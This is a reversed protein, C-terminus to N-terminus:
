RYSVLLSDVERRLLPDDATAEELFAPREAPQRSLVADFLWQVQRWREPTMESSSM